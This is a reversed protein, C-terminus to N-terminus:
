WLLILQKAASLAWSLIKERGENLKPALINVVDLADSGAARVQSFEIQM